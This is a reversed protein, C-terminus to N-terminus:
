NQLRIGLKVADVSYDGDSHLRNVDDHSARGILALSRNLWYTFGASAGWTREQDTRLESDRYGFTLATDLDLRATARHRLGLGTQYLTSTTPASTDPDFTTAATLEVDTGRQPSWAIKADVTPSAATGLRDAKPVNWAYGAAVEGTLKEGFDVSVGGRLAAITSDRTTGTADFEDDFVRRGLSAEAFPAIAPSIRYGARLAGTYTNFNEDLTAGIGGDRDKTERVAAVTGRAFAEGFEHQLDASASYNLLDPREGGADAVPDLDSADEKRYVFGGRLNSTTLRDIDLRVRGDLTVDPNSRNEGAFDRRYNALMDLEAAHRSWDSALRTSLTTDSFAGNTSRPSQDLNSSWGTSQDLAAFLIFTGLRIGIPAFPDDVAAPLAGRFPAVRRNQRLDDLTETRSSRVPASPLSLRGGALTDSGAGDAPEASGARAARSPYGVATSASTGSRDPRDRRAQKSSRKPESAETRAAAPRWAEAPGAPRVATNSPETHAGPPEEFLDIRPKRVPRVPLEEDDASAADDGADESPASDSSSRSFPAAPTQDGDSALPATLPKRLNSRLETAPDPDTGARLDGIGAATSPPKDEATATSALAIWAAGAALAALLPRDGCRRRKPCSPASPAGSPDHM